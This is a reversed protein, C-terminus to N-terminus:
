NAESPISNVTLKLMLSIAEKSKAATAVNYIRKKLENKQEARKQKTCVSKKRKKNRHM